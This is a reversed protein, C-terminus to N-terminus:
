ITAKSLATTEKKAVNTCIGEECDCNIRSTSIHNNECTYEVLTSDDYCYDVLSIIRTNTNIGITIEELGKTQSLVTTDAGNDSDTCSSSIGETTSDAKLAQGVSPLAINAYSLLFIIAIAAVATAIYFPYDKKM